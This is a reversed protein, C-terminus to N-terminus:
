RVEFKRSSCFSVWYTCSFDTGFSVVAKRQCEYLNQLVKNIKCWLAVSMLNMLPSHQQQVFFFAHANFWGRSMRWRVNGNYHTHFAREWWATDKWMSDNNNKMYSYHRHPKTSSGECYLMAVPVRFLMLHAIFMCVKQNCKPFANWTFLNM